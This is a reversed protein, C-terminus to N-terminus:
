NETEETQETEKTGTEGIYCNEGQLDYLQDRRPMTKGRHLLFKVARSAFGDVM